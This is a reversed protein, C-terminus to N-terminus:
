AAESVKGVEDAILSRLHAIHRDLNKLSGNTVAFDDAMLAFEREQELSALEKRLRNLYSTM